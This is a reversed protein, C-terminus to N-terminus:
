RRRKCSWTCAILSLAVLALSSPEPVAAFARLETFALYEERTAAVRIYRGTLGSVDITHDYDPVVANPAANDVVVSGVEAM